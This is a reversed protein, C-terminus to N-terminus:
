EVGQERFFDRYLMDTELIHHMFWIRLLNFTEQPVAPDGADCREQLEVIKGVLERHEERHLAYGEFGYQVMLNEEIQFHSRTYDILRTFIDSLVERGRGDLYATAFEDIIAILEQHQVDISTVGVSMSENWEILPM